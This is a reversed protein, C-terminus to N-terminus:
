CIEQLQDMVDAFLREVDAYEKCVAEYTKTANQFDEYSTIKIGYEEFFRDISGVYYKQLCALVDYETPQVGNRTDVLSAWFDVSMEEDNRTITVRYQDHPKTDWPCDLCGKYQFVIETGTEECFDKALKEYETM